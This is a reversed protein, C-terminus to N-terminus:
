PVKEDEQSAGPPATGPAASPGPGSSVVVRSPRLVREHMTYGRAVEQLVMGAPVDTSPQQLLAEHFNPDFPRGVAEIPEIQRSRLVKVFHEYVIRVGDAVAQTDATTRAAEQTRELDDLVVVLERALEFEAYRLADQKEREARKQQNQADALLRLNKDRLEEVARRLVTLEDEAAPVAASAATAVVDEGPPDKVPAPEADRLEREDSRAQNKAKRNM